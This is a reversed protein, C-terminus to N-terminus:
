TVILIKLTKTQVVAETFQFMLLVMIRRFIELNLQISRQVVLCLHFRFQIAVNRQRTMYFIIILRGNIIGIETRFLIRLDQIRQDDALNLYEAWACEATQLPKCKKTQLGIQRSHSYWIDKVPTLPQESDDLFDVWWAALLIQVSFEYFKQGFSSKM